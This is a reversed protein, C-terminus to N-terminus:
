FPKFNIIIGNGCGTIHPAAANNHRGAAAKM